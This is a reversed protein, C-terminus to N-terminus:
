LTEITRYRPPPTHGAMVATIESVACRIANNWTRDHGDPDPDEIQLRAVRELVERLVPSTDM